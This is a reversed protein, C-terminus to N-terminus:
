QLREPQRWTWIPLGVGGVALAALMFTEWGFHRLVWDIAAWVALGSGALLVGVAAGSAVAVVLENRDLHRRRPYARVAEDEDPAFLATAFRDALDDIHQGTYGVWVGVMSGNYRAFVRYRGGAHEILERDGVRGGIQLTTGDDPGGRLELWTDTDSM